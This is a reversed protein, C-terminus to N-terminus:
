PGESWLVAGATDLVQASVFSTGVVSKHFYVSVEYTTDAENFDEPVLYVGAELPIDNDANLGSRTNWNITRTALNGTLTITNLDFDQDDRAVQIRLRWSDVADPDTESSRTVTVNATTDARPLIGPGLPNVPEDNFYSYDSNEIYELHVHPQNIVGSRDDFGTLGARGLVQGAEVVDGLAVDFDQFHMMVIREDDGAITLWNGFRDITLPDNWGIFEVDITETAADTDTSRWYLLPRFVATVQSTWTPSAQTAINTWSSANTSVAWSLTTGTLRIRFWTETTVALTTGSAAFPGGSGAGLATADAGNYELAVYEGTDEDLLGFGVQGAALVASAVLQFRIEWGEGNNIVVRERVAKWAAVNPFTQAGIRSGVIRLASGVRTFTAAGAGDDETWQDLQGDTEWGFHTYHLRTVSGGFAARLPDGANLVVDVGRHFDYDYGVTPIHAAFPRPGFIDRVDSPTGTGSDPWVIGNNLGQRAPRRRGIM